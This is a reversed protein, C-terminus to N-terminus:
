CELSTCIDSIKIETPEVQCWYLCTFFFAKQICFRKPIKLYTWLISLCSRQRKWTDSWTRKKKKKEMIVKWASKREDCWGLVPKAWSFWDHRRQAELLGWQSEVWMRSSWKKGLGYAWECLKLWVDGRRTLLILKLYKYCLMLGCLDWKSRPVCTLQCVLFEVSIVCFCVCVCVHAWVLTNRRIWKKM